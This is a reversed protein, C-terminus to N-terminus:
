KDVSQKAKKKKEIMDWFDSEYYKKWNVGREPTRGKGPSGTVIDKFIKNEELEGAGAM